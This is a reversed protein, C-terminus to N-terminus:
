LMRPGGSRIYLFPSVIKSPHAGFVRRSGRPIRIKCIDVSKSIVAKSSFSLILISVSLYYAKDIFGYLSFLYSLLFTFYLLLLAQSNVFLFLPPLLLIIIPPRLCTSVCSAPNRATSLIRASWTEFQGGVGSQLVAGRCCNTNRDQRRIHIRRASRM